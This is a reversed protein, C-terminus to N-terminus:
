CDCISFRNCPLCALRATYRNGLDYHFEQKRQLGTSLADVNQLLAKAQADSLSIGKKGPLMQMLPM